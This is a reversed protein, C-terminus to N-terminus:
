LAGLHPGKRSRRRDIGARGGDMRTFAKLRAGSDLVAVSVAIGVEAAKVRAASVALGAQEATIQM